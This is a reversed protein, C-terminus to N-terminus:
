ETPQAKQLAEDAAKQQQVEIRNAAAKVNDLREKPTASGVPRMGYMSRYGLYGLVAIGMVASLIRGM